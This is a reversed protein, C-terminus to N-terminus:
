AQPMEPVKNESPDVERKETEKKVAEIENVTIDIDEFLVEQCVAVKQQNALHLMAVFYKASDLPEKGKTLSYYTTKRIKQIEEYVRDVYNDIELSILREMNRIKQERSFKMEEKTETAKLVKNVAAVLEEFTVNRTPIRKLPMELLPMNNLDIIEPEKEQVPIVPLLKESKLRLIVASVIVFRAPIRFNITELESLYKLLEQSIKVIDLKDPDLGHELMIEKVVSEWDSGEIILELAKDM